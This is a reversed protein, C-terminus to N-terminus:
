CEEECQLTSSLVFYAPIWIMKRVNGKAQKKALILMFVHQILKVRGRRARNAPYGASIQRLFHCVLLERIVAWMVYQCSMSSVCPYKSCLPKRTRLRSLAAHNSTPNVRIEAAEAFASFRFTCAV